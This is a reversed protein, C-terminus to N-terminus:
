VMKLSSPMQPEPLRLRQTRVPTICSLRSSERGEAQHFALTLFSDLPWTRTVNDRPKEQLVQLESVAGRGAWLRMQEKETVEGSPFGQGKAWRKNRRLNNSCPCVFEKCFPLPAPDTPVALLLHRETSHLQRQQPFSIEKYLIIIEASPLIDKQLTDNDWQLLHRQCKSLRFQHSHCCHPAKEEKAMTLFFLISSLHEQKWKM